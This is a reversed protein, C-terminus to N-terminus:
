RDGRRHRSPLGGFVSYNEFDTALSLLVQARVHAIQLESM